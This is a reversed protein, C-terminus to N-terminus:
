FIIVHTNPYIGLTSEGRFSVPAGTQEPINLLRSKVYLKMQELPRM